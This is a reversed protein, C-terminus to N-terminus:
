LNPDHTREAALSSHQNVQDQAHTTCAVVSATIQPYLIKSYGSFVTESLDRGTRPELLREM